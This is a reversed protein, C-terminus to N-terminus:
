KLMLRNIKKEIEQDKILEPAHHPKKRADIILAGKCGWHKDQTFSNLGEIDAAPNSRTFTVWVLNNINEATFAADDCCVVLVIGEMDQVELEKKLLLIEERAKEKNKYATGSLVLVGPMAM